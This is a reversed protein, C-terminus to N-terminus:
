TMILLRPDNAQFVQCVKEFKDAIEVPLKDRLDGFHATQDVFGFECYFKVLHGFPICYLSHKPLSRTKDLLSEVIRRAYGLNRYEDKVYIGALERSGDSCLSLRGQGVHAGFLQWFLSHNCM